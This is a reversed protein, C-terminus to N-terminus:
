VLNIREGDSDWKLKPHLEVITTEAVVHYHLKRRLCSGGFDNLRSIANTVIGKTLRYIDAGTGDRKGRVVEICDDVVDKIKFPILNRQKVSDFEVGRRRYDEAADCIVNWSVEPDLVRENM